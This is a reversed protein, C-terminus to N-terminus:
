FSSWAPPDSAPFTMELAADIAAERSRIAVTEDDPATQRYEGVHRPLSDARTPLPTETALRQAQQHDCNQIQDTTM